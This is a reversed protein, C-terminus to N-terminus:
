NGHRGVVVWRISINPFCTKILDALIVITAGTTTIDDVILLTADEPLTLDKQLVFSWTLNTRRRERSLKTQSRTLTIKSAITLLPVDCQQAVIEALLYSQNYGKVFRRRRWHSPVYTVFLKHQHIAHQLTPNTLILLAVRKALFQAVDKKHYYKLSLILKKILQTYQFVVMIGALSKHYSKCDLCTQYHPSVKHCFPCREPHPKLEKKCEKCLYDGWTQCWVCSIPFLLSIVTQLFDKM